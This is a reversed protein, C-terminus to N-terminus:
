FLRGELNSYFNITHNYHHKVYLTVTDPGAVQLEEIYEVSEFLKSPSTRTGGIQGSTKELSWEADADGWALFGSISFTVGSPIAQAVVISWTDKAISTTGFKNVGGTSPASVINVNLAGSSFTLKDTQTKIGGLTLETAAGTPLPWSNATVVLANNVGDTKVTARTESAGDKIEVAGIDIDSVTLSADVRLRRDDTFSGLVFNDGLTFGALVSTPSYNGDRAFIVPNAGKFIVGDDDVTLAM